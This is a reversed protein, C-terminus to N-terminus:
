RARGTRRLAREHRAILTDACRGIVRDLPKLPVGENLRRNNADIWGLVERLSAPSLIDAAAPRPAGAERRPADREPRRMQRVETCAAVCEAISPWTRYAHSDRVKPWGAELEARTFRGLAEAYQTLAAATQEATKLHRPPAFAVTMPAIFADKVTQRASM